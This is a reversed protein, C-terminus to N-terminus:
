FSKLDQLQEWPTSTSGDRKKEYVNYTLNNEDKIKAEQGYQSDKIIKDSITIAKNLLKTDQM